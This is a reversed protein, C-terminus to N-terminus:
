STAFGTIRRGTTVRRRELGHTVARVLWANASIGEAAAASEVRQKLSDPMRLTIRATGADDAETAAPAPAEEGVYVLQLDRGALRVDVRGSPLQDSLEMAARSVADQLHLRLSAALTRAIAEAARAVSEDGTAAAAELDEHVARVFPDTEV